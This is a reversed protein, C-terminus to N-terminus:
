VDSYMRTKIDPVGIISRKVSSLKPTEVYKNTELGYRKALYDAFDYVSAGTGSCINIAGSLPNEVLKSIARGVDDIHSFDFVDLPSKLFVQKKSAFSDELYAALKQQPQDAGFLYFLRAWSFITNTSQFYKEQAFYTAIKTAAYLNQPSLDSNKQLPFNSCAYEMCSGLGIFHRIKQHKCIELLDIAFQMSHVNKFSTQYDEPDTHWAANIITNFKPLESIWLAESCLAKEPLYIYNIDKFEDLNLLNNNNSNRLLVHLKIKKNNVLCRIISRSVYGLGVILLNM